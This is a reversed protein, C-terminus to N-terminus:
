PTRYDQHTTLVRITRTHTRAVSFTCDRSLFDSCWFCLLFQVCMTCFAGEEQLPCQGHHGPIGLLLNSQIQEQTDKGVTGPNM